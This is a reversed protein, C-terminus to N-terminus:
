FPSNQLLQTAVEAATTVKNMALIYTEGVSDINQQFETARAPDNAM